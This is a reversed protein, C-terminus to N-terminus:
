GSLETNPGSPSRSVNKPSPLLGSSLTVNQFAV